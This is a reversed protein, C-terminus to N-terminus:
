PQDCLAKRIGVIAARPVASADLYLDEVSLWKSNEPTGCDVYLTGKFDGLKGDGIVTATRIGAAYFIEDDILWSQTYVGGVPDVHILTPTEGHAGTASLM